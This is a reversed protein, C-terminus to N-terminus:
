VVGQALIGLHGNKTRMLNHFGDKACFMKRQWGSQNNMGNGESNIAGM